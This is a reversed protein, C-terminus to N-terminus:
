SITVDFFGNWRPEPAAVIAAMRFSSTERSSSASATGGSNWRTMSPHTTYFGSCRKWDARSRARVSRAIEDLEDVRRSSRGRGRERLDFAISEMATSGNWFPPASASV